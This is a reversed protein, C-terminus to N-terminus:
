RAGPGLGMSLARHPPGSRCAVTLYMWHAPPVPTGFSAQPSMTTCGVREARDTEPKDGETGRKARKRERHLGEQAGREPARRRERAQSIRKKSEWTVVKHVMPGGRTRTEARQGSGANWDERGDGDATRRDRERRHRAWTCVFEAVVVAGLCLQMTSMQMKVASPRGYMSGTGNEHGLFSTSLLVLM